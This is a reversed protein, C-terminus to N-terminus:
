KHRRHYILTCGMKRVEIELPSQEDRMAKSITTHINYSILSVEQKIIIIIIIIIMRSVWNLALGSKVITM